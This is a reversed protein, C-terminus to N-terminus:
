LAIIEAVGDSIIESLSTILSAEFPVLFLFVLFYFCIAFSLFTSVLKRNHHPLDRVPEELGSGRLSRGDRPRGRSSFARIGKDYIQLPKFGM